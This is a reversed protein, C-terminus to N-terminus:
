KPGNAPSRSTPLRPLPQILTNLGTVPVYMSQSVVVLPWGTAILPRHPSCTPLEFKPPADDTTKLAPGRPYPSPTTPMRLGALGAAPQYGPRHRGLSNVSPRPDGM